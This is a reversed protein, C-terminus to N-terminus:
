LESVGNRVTSINAYHMAVQGYIKKSGHESKQTRITQKRRKREWFSFGFPTVYTSFSWVQCFQYEHIKNLIYM